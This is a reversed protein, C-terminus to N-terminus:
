SSPMRRRHSTCLKMHEQYEPSENWEKARGVSPFKLVITRQPNWVGELVDVDDHAVLVEGDYKRVIPFVGEVYQQYVDRSEVLVQAVFYGSM